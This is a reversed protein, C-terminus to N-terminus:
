KDKVVKVRDGNSISKGARLIIKSNQEFNGEVAAYTDNKELVKVPVEEVVIQMGLTTGEEKAVLIYQESESGYLATIPICYQYVNSETTLELEARGSQKVQDSNIKVRIQYIKNGTGGELLKTEDPVETKLETVRDIEQNELFVNQDKLQISCYDGENVYAATQEDATGEFQFPKNFDELLVAVDTGVIGGIRINVQQIEGNMESIVKGEAQKIKRLSELEEEIEQKELQQLKISSNDELPTKADEIQRLANKESEDGLRVAAEYARKKQEYDQELLEKQREWEAMRDDSSGNNELDGMSNESTETNGLETEAEAVDQEQIQPPNNQCEELKIRAQEMDQYAEAETVSTSNVTDAYDTNARNISQNKKNELQKRNNEASELQINLKQLEKESDDIKQELFEMDYTFLVDGRQVLDGEQVAVEGVRLEETGYVAEVSETQVEGSIKVPYQLSMQEFSGIMVEPMMFSDAIKAIITLAIMGAVYTMIM